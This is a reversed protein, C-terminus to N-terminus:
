KEGKAYNFNLKSVIFQYLSRPIMGLVKLMSSFFWPFSYFYKKKEIANAILTAAKEASIIFPMPHHNNQTLPTAVFGPAISSVMINHPKLDLAYGECLKMVGSKAASYASVGPFGCFGAVSAIAVLHGGGNKLMYQIAPEFTNLVGYLNIDLIQRSREFDPIRTKKAFGLGASAVVLDLGHTNSFNEIAQKIQDRDVVDAGYFHAKDFSKLAEFKKEDRGCVGVINGQNLYYKALELGIGSTGGTIFIKLSM